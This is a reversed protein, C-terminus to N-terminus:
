CAYLHIVYTWYWCVFPWLPSLSVTWKRSCASPWTGFLHRERLFTNQLINCSLEM